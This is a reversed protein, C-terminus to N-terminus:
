LSSYAFVVSIGLSTSKAWNNCWTQSQSGKCQLRGPEETWPIELLSYQLPNGNREEPYRGLGPISGSDGVSALLNRVGSAGPFGLGLRSFRYIIVLVLSWYYHIEIFIWNFLLSPVYIYMHSILTSIQCFIVFNQLAVIRENFIKKFVYFFLSKM